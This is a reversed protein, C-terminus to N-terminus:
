KNGQKLGEELREFIEEVIVDHALLLLVHLTKEQSISKCVNVGHGELKLKYTQKIKKKMNKTQQKTM